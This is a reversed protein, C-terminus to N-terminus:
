GESTIKALEYVKETKDEDENANGHDVVKAYIGPKDKIIWVTHHGGFFGKIEAKVCDFEGAPVKVKEVAVLEREAKELVFM